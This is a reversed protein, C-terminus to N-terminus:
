ASVLVLVVNITAFFILMSMIIQQFNLSVKGLKELLANDKICYKYLFFCVLLSVIYIISKQLYAINNIEFNVDFIFQMLQTGFVGGALCALGLALIVIRKLLIGNEIARGRGFFVFSYKTFVLITGVNIAILLYEIWTGHVGYQMFYKSISANFLPAGTIGLIGLLTIVSTVPMTKFVGSIERTDRTNYRKIIMGASLFLLVKFVAHCMIHYIGGFNSIESEVSLAIAIIGIQSVTSYALILKLDTQTLAFVIGLIATTAGILIFFLHYNISGEFLNTFVYFLYIGNKVYLGSLIASVSSPASPTGHACPLWSFLPFFASKLCVATMIFAFPLILSQTDAYPMLEKIKEISLVGFIKYMYGVGFLYFVMCIIQSLLYVMGDYMSRRDKKFMILISVVITAVELLVYINFLDDSLFVGTLLGQLIFFLMAFKKDFFNEKMTYVFCASFLIISLGVLVIKLRDAILVIGMVSNQAGLINKIEGSQSIEFLTICFWSFLLIETLIILSRNFMKPITYICVGIAIPVAVFYLLQM